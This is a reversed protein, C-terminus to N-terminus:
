KAFLARTDEPMEEFTMSSVSPPTYNEEDRGYDDWDILVFEENPNDSYVGVLTGGSIEIAIM